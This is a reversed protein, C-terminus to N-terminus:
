QTECLVTVSSVETTTRHLDHRRMNCWSPIEVSQFNTPLLGRPQERCTALGLARDRPPQSDTALAHHSPIPRPARAAALRQAGGAARPALGSQSWLLQGVDLRGQALAGARLAETGPEPGQRADGQHDFAHGAHLIVRAM